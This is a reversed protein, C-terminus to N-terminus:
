FLDSVDELVQFRRGFQGAAVRLAEEALTEYASAFSVYLDGSTEMEVRNVLDSQGVTARASVVTDGDLRVGSMALMAAAYENLAEEDRLDVVTQRSM